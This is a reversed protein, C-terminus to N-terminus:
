YPSNKEKLQIACVHEVLNTPPIKKRQASDRLRTQDYQFFSRNEKRLM